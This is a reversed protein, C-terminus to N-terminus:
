GAPIQRDLTLLLFVLGFDSIQEFNGIFVVVVDNSTTETDKLQAYKMGELTEMTLKSCTFIPQTQYIYQNM